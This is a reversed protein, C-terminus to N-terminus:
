AGRMSLRMLSADEEPDLYYRRRRGAEVFGLSAYLSLAAGNSARVELLLADVGATRLEATLAGLLRRAV